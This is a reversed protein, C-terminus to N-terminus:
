ERGYPVGLVKELQERLTEPQFPKWVYGRAGLDLMEQARAETRDTSVVLVPISRLSDDEELLRVFQAGDMVPINIDTLVVDVYEERLVDLVEQGNGAQLYKAVELGSLDLVRRVFTRMAPSDDVILVGYGMKSVGGERLRLWYINNKKERAASGYEERTWRWDCRAHYRGEWIRRASWLATRGFTKRMALCNRKGINLVCEKDMMQAGGVATVVLRRRDAGLDYAAKFLRPIGTDAFVYPNREAKERDLTSEPLLFHLLGGVKAVPDHVIV